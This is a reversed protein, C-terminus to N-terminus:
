KTIKKLLKKYNKNFDKNIILIIFILPLNFAILLMILYKTYSTKHFNHNIKLLIYPDIALKKKLVETKVVNTYNLSQLQHNLYVNSQYDKQVLKKRLKVDLINIIAGSEYIKKILIDPNILNNFITFFKIGNILKGSIYGGGIFTEVIQKKALLNSFNSFSIQNEEIFKVNMIKELYKEYKKFEKEYKELEKIEKEKKLQMESVYVKKNYENIINQEAAIIKITQKLANRYKNSFIKLIYDFCKQNDKTKDGIIEVIYVGIDGRHKVSIPKINDIRKVNCQNLDISNEGIKISYIINSLNESFSFNTENYYRKALFNTKLQMQSEIREDIYKYTFKSIVLAVISAASFLFIFKIINNFKM